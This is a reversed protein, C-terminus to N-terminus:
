QQTPNDQVELVDSATASKPLDPYNESTNFTENMDWNARLDIEKWFYIVKEPQIKELYNGTDWEQNENADEILRVRYKGADLLEFPYNNGDVPKVYRRIVDKNGLLEIIYPTKSDHQVRLYINGYDEIKKTSTKFVLTDNTNGWFDLLANPFLKVEYRDNPLVEFDVTVRDYNGQIKLSAPIQITDVNTVMVYESNVETIPLNSELELKNKLRLTGQTYKNIVLSDAVPNKFYVTKIQLSDKINFEFLLSDLEAGKFWYDLTDTKRNQTVLSEFSEPVESIMKYPEGERDGIYALAIHHDNIFYPKDWAFNTKEKFLRFDIISDQPLEILNEIFGIKDTSQDFFYNGAKDQMALIAYKGARLNQFRYITTDLTSTVYLPKRTYAVSDSFTSDVPYLQLSIFRETEREFADTIRGKIYLSDITAGTSLTYTLYSTPNSENFDIIGEGFNFTYTTNELLSDLLKLTVKKSAGTVPYIKYQSSNLPPSIILQKNIDKLTVYEDFTLSIEEKDFFITNLKPSANVLVPPLSDRPGGTPAARKACQVSSLLLGGLLLINLGFRMMLNIGVFYLM